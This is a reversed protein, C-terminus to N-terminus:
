KNNKKKSFNISLTKLLNVVFKTIPLVAKSKNFNKLAVDHLLLLGKQGVNLWVVIKCKKKITMQDDM